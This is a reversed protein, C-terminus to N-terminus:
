GGFLGIGAGALAGYPGFQSGAVAGGVGSLVPNSGGQMTTTNGYPVGTLGSQLIGLNRVNWDRAENFKSQDSTLGQQEINRFYDGANFAAQNVGFGLNAASLARAQADSFGQYRLQAIRDAAGNYIDGTAQGEAIGQRDGGFAGSLAAQDGIGNRAEKASRAADTYTQDVVGSTYPNEFQAFDAANGGLAGMGLDFLGGNRQLAGAAGTSLDSAGAVTQGGYQTLPQGAAQTAADRVRKTYERTQDDPIVSSTQGGKAGKAM